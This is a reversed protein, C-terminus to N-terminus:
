NNIPTQKIQMKYKFELELLKGDQMEIEKQIDRLKIQLSTKNRKLEKNEKHLKENEKYVKRFDDYNLETLPRDLTVKAYKGIKNLAMTEQIHTLKKLYMTASSVGKNLPDLLKTENSINEVSLVAGIRELSDAARTILDISRQRKDENIKKFQNKNGRAM